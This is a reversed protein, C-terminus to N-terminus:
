ALERKLKERFRREPKLTRHATSRSIGLRRAIRAIPWRKALERLYGEEIQSLVRPRSM